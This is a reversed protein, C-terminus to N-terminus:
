SKKKKTKTSKTKKTEKNLQKRSLKLQLTENVQTITYIVKKLNMDYDEYSILGILGTQYNDENAKFRAKEVKLPLVLGPEETKVFDILIDLAEEVEFSRIKSEVLQITPHEIM